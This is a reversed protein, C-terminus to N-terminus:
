RREAQEHHALDIQYAMSLKPGRQCKGVVPSFLREDKKNLKTPLDSRGDVRRFPQRNHEAYRWGFSVGLPPGPISRM